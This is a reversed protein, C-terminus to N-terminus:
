GLLFFPSTSLGHHGAVKCIDGILSVLGRVSPDCSICKADLREGGRIDDTKETYLFADGDDTVSSSASSPSLGYQAITHDTLWIVLQDSYPLLSM